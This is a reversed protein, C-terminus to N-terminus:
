TSVTLSPLSVPTETKHQQWLKHRLLTTKGTGPAGILALTSPGSGGVFDWISRRDRSDDVSLVGTPVAGAPRPVVRVDVFVTDFEISHEPTAVLGRVEVARTVQLVLARYRSTFRLSGRRPWAAHSWWAYVLPLLVLAIAVPALEGQVIGAIAARGETEASYIRAVFWAAGGIIAAVAALAAADRGLRM